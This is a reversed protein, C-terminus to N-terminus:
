RNGRYEDGRYGPESLVMDGSSVTNVRGSLDRVLLAGKADVGVCLGSITGSLTKITVEKGEAAFYRRWDALSPEPGESMFSSYRSDLSKLLTRTFAAREVTEGSAEALSTSISRLEEPTDAIKMNLNVGIGCVIHEISEMDASMETLIGAVKRGKILLDNPWKLTPRLGTFEEVAEAVAVGLILTLVPADAPGTRPRLIMSLYLNKGPPSHWERGLRGKGIDQSDAVVVTGEPAGDAALKRATINTSNLKNYFHIKRGIIDTDLGAGIEIENFPAAPGDENLLSYGRSREARIRYGQEKLAGIRKWVAARSISLEDGIVSGSVFGGRASKLLTLLAAEKSESTIM